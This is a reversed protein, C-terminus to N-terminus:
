AQPGSGDPTYGGPQFFTPQAPVGAQERTRSLYMLTTYLYQYPVVLIVVAFLLVLGIVMGALAGAPVAGGRGSDALGMASFLVVFYPIMATVGLILALVIQYGLTKWFAGKTIQFSRKLSDWAGAREEAMVPNVYTLKVSLWILGLYFVFLLLMALGVGPGPERSTGSTMALPVLALVFVMGVALGLGLSLLVLMVLRGFLGTTREALNASTPETRGTALDLGAIVTRGQYVYVLLSLAIMVLYFIVTAAVLPGSLTGNQIGRPNGAVMAGVAVSYGIVVLASILFPMVLLKLFLGFRARYIKLAGGVVDGLELPGPKVLPQLSSGPSSPSPVPSPTPWTM